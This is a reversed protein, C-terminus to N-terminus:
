GYHHLEDGINSMAVQHVLQGYKRWASAADVVGLADPREKGTPDLLAVYALKEPPAESAMKPAPYFTPDPRMLTM